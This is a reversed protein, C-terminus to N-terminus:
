PLDRSWYDRIVNHIPYKNKAMAAAMPAFILLILVILRRMNDMRIKVFNRMIWFFYLFLRFKKEIQQAQALQKIELGM